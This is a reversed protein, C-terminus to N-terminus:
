PKFFTKYLFFFCSSTGLSTKIPRSILLPPQEISRRPPCLYFDISWPIPSVDLKNQHHHHNVPLPLIICYWINWLLVVTSAAIATKYTHINFPWQQNSYLVGTYSWLFIICLFIQFQVPLVFLYTMIPLWLCESPHCIFM